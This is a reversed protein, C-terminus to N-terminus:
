ITAVAWGETQKYGTLKLHKSRSYGNKNAQLANYNARAKNYQCQLYKLDTNDSCKNREILPQIFDFLARLPKYGTSMISWTYDNTNYIWVHYNKFTRIFPTFSGNKNRKNVTISTDYLLFDDLIYTIGNFSGYVANKPVRKNLLTFESKAINFRKM